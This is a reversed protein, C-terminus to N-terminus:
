EHKAKNTAPGDTFMRYAGKVRDLMESIQKAKTSGVIVLFFFVVMYLHSLLESSSRCTQSWESCTFDALWRLIYATCALVIPLLYRSIM